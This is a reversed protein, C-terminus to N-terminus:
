DGARKEASFQGLSVDWFRNVPCAKGGILAKRHRLNEEGPLILLAFANIL